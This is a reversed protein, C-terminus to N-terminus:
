QLDSIFRYLSSATSLGSSLNDVVDADVLGQAGMREAASILFEEDTFLRFFHLYM